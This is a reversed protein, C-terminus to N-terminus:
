RDPQPLALVSAAEVLADNIIGWKAARTKSVYETMLEEVARQMGQLAGRLRALEAVLCSVCVGGARVISEPLHSCPETM